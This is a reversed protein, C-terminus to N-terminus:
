GSRAVTAFDRTPAFRTVAGHMGPANIRADRNGSRDRPRRGRALACCRPCAVPQAIASFLANAAQRSDLRTHQVVIPCDSELVACYDTARPVPAPDSLDNFRIHRARRAPIALVYPGVPERDTFYLTIQVTAAENGANLMCASDHSTMDPEPGTSHAPIWGDAIVWTRDGIQMVRAVSPDSRHRLGGAVVGEHGALALETLPRPDSRDALTTSVLIRAGPAALRVTRPESGFNLAVFSREAPSRREYVLCETAAQPIVRLTGTRLSPRTRRLALLARYLSLLSREDALQREINRERWDPGLPLWPDHAGPPSFGAGPADNWPLPTRNPDRTPGGDLRAFGDRGRGPPIEVDTMGLEDGYYLIPTGRATLLLMAAARAPTDGLRSAIRSRDHNGLNNVAWAGPPLAHELRRLSAAIAEARWPTEILSFNMPLQLEDLDEGYYSAWESWPMVDLEGIAVRDGYEELVDRLKRLVGHVDPHRRDNVHLQTHFDAHQRDYPNLEGKPNPPNDRLRPDKMLMHAVDIRVGDVGLELWHRLVGLMAARVNPNRWNLDPQEVLHSHLYFQHTPEDWEWVSGGAESLWNNPLAGGARPDAWVYWDRMPSDRSRRSEEFWPHHDSTHNPVYDVILRLGREHGAAVLSEFTALDGFRPDVELHDSIDYGGDLWPSVFFPSVWIVDVGLVEDLYPLADIVGAIDGLGDGDSDRFSPLYVHYIVASRWWEAATGGHQFSGM